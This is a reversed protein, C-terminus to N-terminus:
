KISEILEINPEKSSLMRCMVLFACVGYQKDGRSKIQMRVGNDLAGRVVNVVPARPPPPDSEFREIDDVDVLVNARRGDTTRVGIRLDFPSSRRAYSFSLAPRDVNSSDPLTM